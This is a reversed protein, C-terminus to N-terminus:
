LHAIRGGWHYLVLRAREKIVRYTPFGNRDTRLNTVLKGTRVEKWNTPLAKNGTKLIIETIKFIMGGSVIYLDNPSKM